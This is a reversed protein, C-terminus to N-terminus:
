LETLLRGWVRLIQNRREERLLEINESDDGFHLEVDEVGEDIYTDLLLEASLADLKTENFQIIESVILEKLGLAMDKIIYYSMEFFKKQFKRKLLLDLMFSTDIAMFYNKGYVFRVKQIFNTGFTLFKPKSNFLAMIFTIIASFYGSYLLDDEINYVFPIEGGDLHSILCWSTQPPPYAKEAHKRLFFHFLILEEFSLIGFNSGSKGVITAVVNDEEYSENIDLIIQQYLKEIIKKDEKILDETTSAYLISAQGVLVAKMVDKVEWPIGTTSNASLLLLTNQPDSIILYFEEQLSIIFIESGKFTSHKKLDFSISAIGEGFMEKGLEGLGKLFNVIIEQFEESPNGFSWKIEIGEVFIAWNEKGIM